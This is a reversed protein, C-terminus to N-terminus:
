REGEFSGFPDKSTRCCMVKVCCCLRKYLKFSSKFSGVEM